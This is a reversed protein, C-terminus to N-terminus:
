DLLGLIEDNTLPQKSNGSLKEFKEVMELYDFSITKNLDYLKNRYDEIDIKTDDEKRMTYVMDKLLEMEYMITQQNSLLLLLLKTNTDNM